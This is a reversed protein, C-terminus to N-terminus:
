KLEVLILVPNDNESLKGALNKLMSKKEPFDTKMDKFNDSNVENILYIADIWDVLYVKNNIRIKSEPFFKLNSDIGNELGVNWDYSSAKDLLVFRKNEIDYVTYYKSFDKLHSYRLFLFKDTGTMDNQMWTNSTMLDYEGNLLENINFRYEDQIYVAFPITKGNKLEYITDGLHGWYYISNNREFFQTSRISVETSFNEFTNRKFDIINGITDSVLWDYDSVQLTSNDSFYLRDDFFTIGSFIGSEYTPFKRLLDGNKNYVKIINRDLIYINGTSNDIDFYYQRSLEDPANGVKCMEM